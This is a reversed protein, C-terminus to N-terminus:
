SERVRNQRFSHYVGEYDAACERDTNVIRFSLGVCAKLVWEIEDMVAQERQIAAAMDQEYRAELEEWDKLPLDVLPDTYDEKQNEHVILPQQNPSRSRKEPQTMDHIVEEKEDQAAETSTQSAFTPNQNQSSLGSFGNIQFNGTSPM